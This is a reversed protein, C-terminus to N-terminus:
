RALAGTAFLSEADWAFLTRALRFKGSQEAGIASERRAVIRAAEGYLTQLRAVAEACASAEADSEAVFRFTYEGARPQEVQYALLGNVDGVARDLEGVTVARGDAAFTLDRTRGEIAAVTIGATRGCRCPKDALRVLDGVDFRLLAVWPNELLTVFIRGTLGGGHEKRFPRFDVHCYAANQHFWGNECETFVHGTETSGYSSLIPTDPFLRRFQRYHVRSPFEYTLSIFRPRPATVGTDAAHRALIALYAPDAELLEPEFRSLEALMREKDAATWYNPDAKQNLFLLRGLTREQMSLDGVHCVTGACLPTTLVAERQTGNIVRDLGRHLTAAAHESADWWPQYWVISARDESTGSTSVLEIEGAAIGARFDRTRPVFGKPMHARVDRKTLFPLAAYRADVSVGPGPDFPRWREYFPAQELACELAAACRARYRDDVVADRPVHREQM